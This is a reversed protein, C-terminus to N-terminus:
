GNWISMFFHDNHQRITYWCKGIFYLPYVCLFAFVLLLFFNLGRLFKSSLSKSQRRM